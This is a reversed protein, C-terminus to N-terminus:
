SIYIRSHERTFKGHIRYCHLAVFELAAEYTLFKNSMESPFHFPSTPISAIEYCHEFKKITLVVKKDLSTEIIDEVSSGSNSHFRSSNNSRSM